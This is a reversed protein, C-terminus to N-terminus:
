RTFGVPIRAIHVPIWRLGSGARLIASRSGVIAGLGVLTRVLEMLGGRRQVLAQGISLVFMAPGLARSARLFPRRLLVVPRRGFGLLEALV